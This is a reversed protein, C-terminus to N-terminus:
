IVSILNVQVNYYDGYIHEEIPQGDYKWLVPLPGISTAFTNGAWAEDSLEFMLLGDQQGRYHDRILEAQNHVLGNFTMELTHGAPRSGHLFRVDGGGFGTEITVPFIGLSYRRSTPSLAPFDAM